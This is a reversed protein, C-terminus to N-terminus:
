PNTESKILKLSLVYFTGKNQLSYWYQNSICTYVLMMIRTQRVGVYPSIFIEFDLYFNLESKLM